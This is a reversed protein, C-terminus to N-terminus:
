VKARPRYTSQTRALRTPRRQESPPSTVSFTRLRCSDKAARKWIPWAYFNLKNFKQSNKELYDASFGHTKWPNPDYISVWSDYININIDYPESRHCILKCSHRSCSYLHCKLNPSIDCVYNHIVNTALGRYIVPYM